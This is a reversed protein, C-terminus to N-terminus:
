SYTGDLRDRRRLRVSVGEGLWRTKLNSNFAIAVDSCTRGPKAAALAAELRAVNGEHLRRIHDSPKGIAVDHADASLDLWSARRQVRFQEALGDPLRRRDLSHSVHLHTRLAFFLGAFDTSPKGNASRVLTAIVEASENAERAGSRIVDRAKLMGADSIATAERMMAFESDSKVGRIRTVANTCYVINAGTSRSKFKKVTLPCSGNKWVPGNAASAMTWSSTSPRRGNPTAILAESYGTVRSRDVFM